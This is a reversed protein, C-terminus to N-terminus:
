IAKRNFTIVSVVNLLVIVIITSLIAPILRDPSLNGQVLSMNQTALWTPNFKAIPEFIGLIMLVIFVLLTTLLSGYSNSFLIGGLLTVSILFVGFLWLCVGAFYAHHLISVDWFYRTYIDTLGFCLVFSATWLLISLTLKGYIVTSRKLGKTLINILTGKTIEHSVLTSFLIVLVILGMQGVNKYFQAWSDLATPEPLTIQMGEPMFTELLEPTVKATIPNMIGLLAFVVAFIFVKYTRLAELWEKKVFAIYPRM